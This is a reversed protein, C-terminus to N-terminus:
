MYTRYRVVNGLRPFKLPVVNQNLLANDLITFYFMQGPSEIFLFDFIHYNSVASLTNLILNDYM